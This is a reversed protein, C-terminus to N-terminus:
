RRRRDRRAAEGRAARHGAPPGFARDFSEPLAALAAVHEHRDYARRDHLAEWLQGSVCFGLMHLAEHHERGLSVLRQMTEFAEPPDDDM